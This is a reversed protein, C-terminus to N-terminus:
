YYLDNIFAEGFCVGDCDIDSNEPHDTLGESCVGCDDIFATGGCDDNCDYYNAACNPYEDVDGCIDDGDIDNDADYPCDDVDGCINDGDADNEVDYPCDDVDGCINDGDIDNDADYPCDDNNNLVWNEDPLTFQTNDTLTESLYTCYLTEGDGSYGLSDEDTDYYYVEAPDAFCGCGVDDSNEIHGSLGESCVGCDDIFATGGLDGNCDPYVNVFDLYAFLNNEWAIDESAVAPYYDDESGDYVVFSPIDGTLLYGESYDSGDGGDDCESDAKRYDSFVILSIHKM